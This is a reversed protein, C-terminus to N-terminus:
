GCSGAADSSEFGLLEDGFGFGRFLFSGDVLDLFVGITNARVVLGVGKKLYRGDRWVRIWLIEM